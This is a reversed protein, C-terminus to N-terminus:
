AVVRPSGRRTPGNEGRTEGRAGDRGRGGTGRGGRPRVGAEAGADGGGNKRRAPAGRARRGEDKAVARPVRISARSAATKWGCNRSRGDPGPGEVRAALRVFLGRARGPRRVAGRTRVHEYVERRPRLPRGSSSGTRRSVRRCAGGHGAPDAEPDVYWWVRSDIAGSGLPRNLAAVDTRSTSRGDALLLVPGPRRRRPAMRETPARFSAVLRRRPSRRRLEQDTGRLEPAGRRRRARVAAATQLARSRPACSSRPCRRSRRRPDDASAGGGTAGLGFGHPTRTTTGGNEVGRGAAASARRLCPRRRPRRSGGAASRPSRADFLMPDVGDLAYAANFTSQGHRVLYVM